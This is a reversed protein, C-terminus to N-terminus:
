SNADLHSRQTKPCSTCERSICMLPPGPRDVTLRLTMRCCRLSIHHHHHNVILEECVFKGITSVLVCLAEIDDEVPNHIETLFRYIVAHIIVRESLLSKKYLEGIFQMLGMFDVPILLM